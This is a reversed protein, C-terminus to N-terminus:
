QEPRGWGLSCCKELLSAKGETKSLSNQSKIFLKHDRITFFVNHHNNLLVQFCSLWRVGDELTYKVDIHTEERSALWLTEEFVSKGRKADEDRTECLYILVSVTSNWNHFESLFYSSIWANNQRKYVLYEEWLGCLCQRLDAHRSQTGWIEIEKGAGCFLITLRRGRGGGDNAGGACNQRRVTTTAGKILGTCSLRADQSHLGAAENVAHPPGTKFDKSWLSELPYM